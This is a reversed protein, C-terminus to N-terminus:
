RVRRWCAGAAAMGGSLESAIQLAVIGMAEPPLWSLLTVNEAMWGRAPPVIGARNLFFFATYIPVTIM